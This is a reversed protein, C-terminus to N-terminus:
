AGRCRDTFELRAPKAATASTIADRHLPEVDDDPQSTSEPIRDCDDPRCLIQVLWCQDFVLRAAIRCCPSERRPSRLFPCCGSDVIGAGDGRLDQRVSCDSGFTGFIVARLGITHVISM